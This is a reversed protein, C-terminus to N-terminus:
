GEQDGQPNEFVIKGGFVRLLQDVTAGNIDRTGKLLRNIVGKDVQAREAVVNQPLGSRRIVDRIQEALPYNSGLGRLEPGDGKVKAGRAKKVKPEQEDAM